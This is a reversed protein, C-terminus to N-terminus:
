GGAAAMFALMEVLTATPNEEVLFHGSRIERGVVAPAWRRWVDIPSAGGRGVYDSGWLALTPCAIKQGRSLSEIDALRDFSVGARYDECVAHIREPASLAARYHKLAGAAFCSLTKSATWSALTHDVYYGPDAAILTEPLPAPQALFSWHYSKYAAEWRMAEWVDVTPLIDLVMLRSAADPHDIALRYAVRAGRDHGAVMFRRHGLAAMLEVIDNAMARKSYIEHDPDSALTSQPCSSAGYGRLDPIVLTANRALEPAVAHWCVHTQPYGHLLVLPAGAGGIRCNIECGATRVKRSAFGPFLDPLATM